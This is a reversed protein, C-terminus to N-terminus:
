LDCEHSFLTNIPLNFDVVSYNITENMLNITYIIFSIHETIFNIEENKYIIM